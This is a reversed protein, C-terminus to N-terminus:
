GDHVLKLMIEKFFPWEVRGCAKHMDLKITHLGEKGERKVKIKTFCECAM